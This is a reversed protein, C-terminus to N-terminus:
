STLADVLMVIKGMGPPAGPNCLVYSNGAFAGFSPSSLPVKAATGEPWGVGDHMTAGGAIREVSASPAFSARGRATHQEALLRNRERTTGNALRRLQAPSTPPRLRQGLRWVCAGAADVAYLAHGLQAPAISVGCFRAHPIRLVVRRHWPGRANTGASTLLLVARGTAVVLQRGGPVLAIGSPPSKLEYVLEAVATQKKGLTLKYVASASGRDTVYLRRGDEDACIAYPAALSAGQVQLKKLPGAKGSSQAEGVGGQQAVEGDIESAASWRKLVSNVDLRFICQQGGDVVYLTTKLLAVDTPRVLLKSGQSVLVSNDCPTHSAKLVRVERRQADTYIFLGSRVHFAGGMPKGYMKPTNDRWQQHRAPGLEVIRLAEGLSREDESVLAPQLKREYLSINEEISFANKGRIARRSVSDRVAARREPDADYFSAQILNVGVMQGEVRVKHHRPTRGGSKADHVLDSVVETDGLKAATTDDEARWTARKVAKLAAGGVDMAATQVWFRRCQRGASRCEQCAVQTHHVGHDECEGGMGAALVCSSCELNCRAIAASWPKDAEFAWRLCSECVGRLPALVDDTLRSLIAESGHAKSDLFYGLHGKVSGDSLAGMVEVAETVLPNEKRWQRQEPESM